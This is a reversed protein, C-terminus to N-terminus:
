IVTISGGNLAIQELFILSISMAYTGSVAGLPEYDYPVSYDTGDGEARADQTVNEAQGIGTFHTARSTDVGRPGAAGTRNGLPRIYQSVRETLTMNGNSGGQASVGSQRAALDDELIVNVQDIINTVADIIETADTIANAIAVGKSVTGAIAVAPDISSAFDIAADYGHFVIQNSITNDAAIEAATIGVGPTATGVLAVTIDLSIRIQPDVIYEELLAIFRDRIALPLTAPFSEFWNTTMLEVDDYTVDVVETQQLLRRGRADEEAEAEDEARGRRTRNLAKAAARRFMDGNLPHQTQLIVEAGKPLKRSKAENATLLRRRRASSSGTVDDAQYDVEYSRDDKPQLSQQIAM